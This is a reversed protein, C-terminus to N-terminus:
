STWLAEAWTKKLRVLNEQTLGRRCESKKSGRAAYISHSARSSTCLAASPVVGRCEGRWGRGEVGARSDGVVVPKAGVKRFSGPWQKVKLDEEEQSDLMPIVKGSWDACCLCGRSKQFLTSLEDRQSISWMRCLGWGWDYRGRRNEKWVQSWFFRKKMRGWRNNTKDSSM